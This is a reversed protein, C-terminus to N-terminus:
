MCSGGVWECISELDRGRADIRVDDGVIGELGEGRFSVVLPLGKPSAMLASHGFQAHVPDYVGRQMHRRAGVWARLYNAPRMGSTFPFVDIEVGAARLAEVQRRIFMTTYGPRDPPPWACTIMLVRIPHETGTMAAQVSPHARRASGRGMRGSGAVQRTQGVSGPAYRATTPRVAGASRPGGLPLTPSLRAPPRCCHLPLAERRGLAVTSYGRRSVRWAARGAQGRAPRGLPPPLRM